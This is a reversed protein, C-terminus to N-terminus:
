RDGTDGQIEPATSQAYTARARGSRRPRAHAAPKKTLELTKTAIRGNRGRGRNPVFAGMECPPYRNKLRSSALGRGQCRRQIAARLLGTFPLWSSVQLATTWTWAGPCDVDGLSGGARPAREARQLHVFAEACFARASFHSQVRPGRSSLSRRYACRRQQLLRAWRLYSTRAAFVASFDNLSTCRAGNLPGKACVHLDIHEAPGGPRRRLAHVLRAPASRGGAGSRREARAGRAPAAASVAMRLAAAHVRCAVWSQPM